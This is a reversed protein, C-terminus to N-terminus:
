RPRVSQSPSDVFPSEAAQHDPFVAIVSDTIEM